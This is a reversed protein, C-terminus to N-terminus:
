LLEFPEQSHTHHKLKGPFLKNLEVAEESSDLTFKLQATRQSATEHCILRLPLRLEHEATELFREKCHIQLTLEVETLVYLLSAADHIWSQM